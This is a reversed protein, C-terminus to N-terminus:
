KSLNRRSRRLFKDFYLNGRTLAHVGAILYVGACLLYTGGLGIVPVLALGLSPGVASGLDGISFVIGLSRSHRSAHVRDGILAATLAPIGGASASVLLAGALALWAEKSGMAWLGAAGVILAAALISWRNKVRDAATGAAPAAVLSVLVRAALFGGSLTALPLSLSGLRIGEGFYSGLWLIATASLVGAFVLRLVFYPVAAELAVAWPFGGKQDETGAPPLTEMEQSAPRRTEPLFALWLLFGMGGM